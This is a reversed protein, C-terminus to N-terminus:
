YLPNEGTNSRGVRMGVLEEDECFRRLEAEEKKSVSSKHVFSSDDYAGQQSKKRKAINHHLIKDHHPGNDGRLQEM